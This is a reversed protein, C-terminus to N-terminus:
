RARRARRRDEGKPRNCVTVSSTCSVLARDTECVTSIFSSPPITGLNGARILALAETLKQEARQEVRVKGVGRATESEVTCIRSAAPEAKVYAVGVVLCSFVLVLGLLLTRPTLLWLRSSPM